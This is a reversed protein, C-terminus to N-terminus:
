LLRQSLRLLARPEQQHALPRPLKRRNAGTPGERRGQGQTRLIEHAWAEMTELHPKQAAAPGMQRTGETGLTNPLIWLLGAMREPVQRTGRHDPGRESEPDAADTGARESRVYINCDDAYRAFRHGRQELEKDLRDLVINSLLPSLPGGQPTGEEVPKVLGDELVGANLYGRVLKLVRKDTVRRAVINM